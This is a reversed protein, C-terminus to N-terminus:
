FMIGREIMQLNIYITMYEMKANEFRINWDALQEPTMIQTNEQRINYCKAMASSWEAYLEDSIPNLNERGFAMM